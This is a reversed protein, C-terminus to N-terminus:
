FIVKLSKDNNRVIYTGSPLAKRAEDSSAFRGAKKGSLDFYDAEQNMLDTIGDVAAASTTFRMSKVLDTALIQDVTASKLTINGEHYNIALGEAAVSMETGDAMSFTLWPYDAATGALPWVLAALILTKKLKKM